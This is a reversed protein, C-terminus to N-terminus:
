SHSKETELLRNASLFAHAIKESIERLNPCEILSFEVVGDRCYGIIATASFQACSLLVVIIECDCGNSLHYPCQRGQETESLKLDFSKFAQFGVQNLALLVKSEATQWDARIKFITIM